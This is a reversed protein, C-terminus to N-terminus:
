FKAKGGMEKREVEKKTKKKLKSRTFINIKRTKTDEEKSELDNRRTELL